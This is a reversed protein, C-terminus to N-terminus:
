DELPQVFVYPQVIVFRFTAEGPASWAEIQESTPRGLRGAALWGQVEGKRDEAVAVAVELLGLRRDVLFLAGRRYHPELDQWSATAIEGALKDHLSSM